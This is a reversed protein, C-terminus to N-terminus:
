IVENFVVDKQNM